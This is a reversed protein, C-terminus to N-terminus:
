YNITFSFKFDRLPTPYYPIVVYESNYLNNVELRLNSSINYIKLKLQIFADALHYYDIKSLRNNSEESYTSSLFRFSFGLTLPDYNFVLGSSVNHEPIFPILKGENIDGKTSNVANTYTYSFNLDFMKDFLNLNIFSELGKSEVNKVNKPKWLSGAFPVWFIRNKTFVNYYNVDINFDMFSNIEFDYISFGIDFTRSEEPKLDPNGGPNWYLDNFTPVRFNESYNMKLFLNSNVIDFNLGIKPSVKGGFDNYYDYRIVPYIKIPVVFEQNIDFGIFGSFQNRKKLNSYNICDISTRFFESGSVISINDDILYNLDFSLGYRYTNANGHVFSLGDTLNPNAYDYTLYRFSPVLSLSFNNQKYKSQLMLILDNDKQRAKSDGSTITNPIGRDANFYNGYFSLQFKEISRNLSLSVQNIDFDANKRNGEFITGRDSFRFKYENNSKEKLFSVNYNLNFLDGSIGATYKKYNYSGISYGLKYKQKEFNQKPIINIIGGIANSGFYASGGGRVIEIREVEDILLNNLDCAGNQDSNIREGNIMVLTHEGSMGRMSLTKLGGYGYDKFILGPQNQIKDSLKIGNVKDISESNIITIFSPSNKMMIETRSASVVVESSKYTKLSDNNESYVRSIFLFILIVKKM